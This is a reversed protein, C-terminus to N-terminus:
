IGAITALITMYEDYMGNITLKKVVGKYSFHDDMSQKRM